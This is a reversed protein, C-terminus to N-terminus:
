YGSDSKAPAPASKATAPVAPKITAASAPAATTSAPASGGQERGSKKSCSVLAVAGLLALLFIFIMKM